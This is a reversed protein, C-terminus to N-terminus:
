RGATRAEVSRVVEQVWDRVGFRRLIAPRHRSGLSGLM